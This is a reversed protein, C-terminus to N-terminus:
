GIVLYFVFDTIGFVCKSLAFNLIHNFVDSISFNFISSRDLGVGCNTFGFKMISTTGPM